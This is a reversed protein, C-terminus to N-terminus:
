RSALMEWCVKRRKACSYSSTREKENNDEQPGRMILLGETEERLEKEEGGIMVAM